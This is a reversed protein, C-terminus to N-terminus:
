RIMRHGPRGNYVDGRGVSGLNEEAGSPRNSKDCMCWYACVVPYMDFRFLHAHTYYDRGYGHAHLLVAKQMLEGLCPWSSFSSAVLPKDLLWLSLPGKVRGGPGVQGYSLFSTKGLGCARGQAMAVVREDQFMYLVEDGSEM